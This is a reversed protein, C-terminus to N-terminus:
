VFTSYITNLDPFGSNYQDIQSRYNLARQYSSTRLVYQIAQDIVSLDIDLSGSLLFSNSSIILSSDGAPTTVPVCGSAAATVLSNPYGEWSSTSIYIHSNLIHSSIDKTFDYLLIKANLDPRYSNILFGVERPVGQGCIVLRLSYNNTDFLSSFLKLLYPFNKSQDFRALSLFQIELPPSQSANSSPLECYYPINPVVTSKSFPYALLRIHDDRGVVSNFIITSDSLRSLFGSAFAIFLTIPRLSQYNPLAQRVSILIHCRKFFFLLQAFLSAHYMWSHVLKVETRLLIHFLFKIANFWDKSFVVYVPIGLSKFSEYLSGNLLSVIAISNASSSSLGQLIRLCSFEAGNPAFCTIFYLIDLKVKKM